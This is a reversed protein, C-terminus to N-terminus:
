IQQLCETCCSSAGLQQSLSPGCKPGHPVFVSASFAQWCDGCAGRGRRCGGCCCSTGGWKAAQSISSKNWSHGTPCEHQEPMQEDSAGHKGARRPQHQLTATHPHKTTDLPTICCTTKPRMAPVTQLRPTKQQRQQEQQHQHPHSRSSRIGTSRQQQNMQHQYKSASSSNRTSTCAPMTTEPPLSTTTTATLPPTQAGDRKRHM